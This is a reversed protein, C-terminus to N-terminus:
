LSDVEELGDFVRSVLVVIDAVTVLVAECEEAISLDLGMYLSIYVPQTWINTVTIVLPRYFLLFNSKM